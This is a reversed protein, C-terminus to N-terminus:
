TSTTAATAATAAPDLYVKYNGKQQNELFVPLKGIDIHREQYDYEGAIARLNLVELNEALTLQDQRHVPAPEGRHRRGLYYPNRELVWNPTNIPTTPAGPRLCRLELNLALHEQVPVPQGLQRVQRRRGAQRAAGEAHVEPPVAEPLPGARLLGGIIDGRMSHGGGIISAGALVGAFLPYPDPFKFPHHRTSRRSRGPKGNIALEASPTPTLEKNQYIDEYWFLITTPRSRSATRGNSARACSSSHPGATTPSRGPGPSAPIIKTGTFDWYLLKDSAPVRNGNEGDGPGTFGRRWTGGYKGIEHVPKLVLPEQPIRQEVPPLKGAKVLEALM